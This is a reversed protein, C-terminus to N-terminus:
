PRAPSKVSRPSHRKWTSRFKKRSLLVTAVPFAVLTALLIFSFPPNIGFFVLSSSGSFQELIATTKGTEGTAGALYFLGASSVTIFSKKTPSFPSPHEPTQFSWLQRGNADYKIVLGRYQVSSSSVYVGSSDAFSSTDLVGIDSSAFTVNFLSLGNMDYKALAGLTFCTRCPFAVGSVYLGTSDGTISSPYVYLPGSFPRSWLLKGDVTYGVLSIRTVVFVGLSDAYLGYVSAGNTQNAFESTWAINGSLDYERVFYVVGSFSQNTLPRDSSGALYIGNANGAIECCNMLGTDKAWSLDGNLNYKLLTTNGFGTRVAYVGDSTAVLGTILSNQPSNEITRSWVLTGQSDYKKLLPSGSDHFRSANVYGAVYAFAKDVAVGTAANLSNPTGFEATWIVPPRWSVLGLSTATILLGLFIVPTIGSLVIPLFTSGKM